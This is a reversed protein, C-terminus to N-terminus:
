QHEVLTSSSGLWVTSTSDSSQTITTTKSSRPSQMRNFQDKIAGFRSEDAFISPDLILEPVLTRGELMNVVESMTPRLAPSSNTCLLAVKTMRIAEEENFETGLRPDVLEMLNGKQQLVLAWDQLCVYDEEPRYKTNNKGAVIELAVIGFSYVDAKYTLYGWLAYEPAMYGITGAIRTSIHTNEEEDFKALGFDSIKANLDSDLLVNTTKIDRHVVKLSSEEHLFALGKAIGLCIKQRTPWDLKLQSEKPGFLARALSNNEMYEYVLLLQIGEVCCGYLRVVNPHQLGSIMGLENLFERDGQKSKSSLKKIAIITGDLLEGKYVAGFGGEGIKNAADFNNTAAQMQRFTFFGTQLDQERSPKPRFYGKRWLIGLAVLILCLVSVVAAVVFKLNKEWSNLVRPKHDSDVSIASILPGYTGRRPTATTGKGAWHFRITLTKNSVVTKIKRVVAKDVGKAQNQINFDKLERKEQVYVDFIRRGLSQYSRNDRIVIEAFHLTVTYNGNALCRFYYTLSLPSLRARTYLESNKIRLISVNQAIFDRSTVDTDWFLGTSSTEWTEGLPFYKAPGGLDEDGEYNIGNITKAGGACNINMSYWDKSCPFNKLCNDLGIYQTKTLGETDSINGELNNFSLDLIQLQSLEWIYDPIPGSINSSRLILRYMNKMNKLNPFKSGEGPLDSIRLEVLNHLLALSSPIPGEFGSAQIELKELQKWSQFIDPMKGSFNNSSIRLEKINSLNALFSPFKGILYNASLTLNELNVLKGLEPPVTGSFLNNELILTELKLAAWERPITGNLYNFYLVMGDIHCEGNPFSCNCTVTSNNIAEPVNPPPPPTFWSSKNNCPNENYNWDKKGLETAIEHLARVEYDPPYPPEVQAEVQNPEMCILMLVTFIMFGFLIKMTSPRTALRGMNRKTFHLLRRQTSKRSQMQNFQDKLAGFRSEDAFISPDMILKPVIARGELMNVVESMTPRLAPSSNTCLLAVKAMRIAEEENFETGLRPDVLEMLNGKQQLVLARDQLCVYDGEPRYKANNKGAVIELAVIGFSYVDAKYTLYGWLAYEPAMYGITGAIRTSIHTNEGEDFKALGFDSIKANLSSDLLVNTTKSTSYLMHLAIIKWTYEYVLLLQTGEVCCGYLRVVNPHQLGSIMGLENLFERDGQRSKSSLKKIAIITGDLLVGKYVAGFGGEGIKNAADFNNTAAKMQIFSFFGTKNGQHSPDFIAKGGYFVLILCLVSVVAGVVFKLNKEWANLVRPKHDSDVSIASILPGYTGRRPIATTGKGAWHFRITLTKNRVVTKFKRIVAKDVGKEENKINFDKLELKEQVYVDFIRRGLSQYSRNDRIVIEAFHLTVTYNGNALCRFYYTLSLPSLRARTYLESNNTRLVSVNRAIFDMSTPTTDWFLGTSSTEWTEKLPVYKAQGGLDEDAEYDVGNITTAGGGCNINVSYWDKSCPLNKLCNDPGLNKGGSFSQFLNLNERCSLSQQSESFNNYSLDIQIYQTKTLSESDSIDGELKNFSLDRCPIVVKRTWATSANHGYALITRKPYADAGCPNTLRLHMKSPGFWFRLIQLQPFEWIYDPITGSVNCSRLMLRYMNKMNKLNPFKSGEGPLDSIRLEVLNHLLALSSPIPGEFGSAQIELKELQKWSRFINPIKGTFNNSSIRLEKLNSLNALSSPFKGTLYNANLTLNELNVLRGFEPPITGSFQNNELSLYKLTTINGLYGPIPGTIHNMAVSLTELKLAAWEHPIIGKLYNRHLIVTKIYLLKSLSPPLVGDLDQGVLYIVEIHCEGNTFSCNCTVTSNNIAQSGHTPPPTFWSSKNNCPNESFNWDKKGLEAAIEHLAKLEYDPPYPPEVRAEVQNPEMCVLVLFVTLIIYGFLIKMVSPYNAAGGM